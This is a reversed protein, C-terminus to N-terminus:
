RPETEAPEFCSPGLAQEAHTITRGSGLPGEVHVGLRLVPGVAGRESNAAKAYGSCDIAYNVTFRVLEGGRLHVAKAHSLGTVRVPPRFAAGDSRPSAVPPSVEAFLPGRNRVTVVAMGRNTRSNFGGGVALDVRAAVLGSWWLATFGVTLITLVAVFRLVPRGSPVFGIPAEPENPPVPTTM